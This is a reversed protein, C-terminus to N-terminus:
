AQSWAAIPVCDGNPEQSAAAARRQQTPPTEHRKNNASPALGMRLHARSGAIVKHGAIRRGRRPSMLVSGATQPRARASKSSADPDTSLAARPIYATGPRASNALDLRTTNHRLQLRTVGAQSPSVWGALGAVCCLLDDRRCGMAHDSVVNLTCCPRM